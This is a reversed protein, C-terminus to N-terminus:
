RSFLAIFSKGILLLSFILIAIVGIHTTIPEIGELMTGSLPIKALAFGSLISAIYLLLLRDLIIVEQLLIHFRPFLQTVTQHLHYFHRYENFFKYLFFDKEVLPDIM